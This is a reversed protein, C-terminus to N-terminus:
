FVLISITRTVDTGPAVILRGQMLIEEFKNANNPMERPILGDNQNGVLIWGRYSRGLSHRVHVVSSLNLAATFPLNVDLINSALLPHLSLRNLADVAPETQRSVTYDTQRVKALPPQPGLGKVSIAM